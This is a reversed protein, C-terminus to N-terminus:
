KGGLITKAKKIYPLIEELSGPHSLISELIDNIEDLPLLSRPDVKLAALLQSRTETIEAASRLHATLAQNVILMDAYHGGIATRLSKDVQDIADIISARRTAIESGADEMFEQVLAAKAAPDNEGALLQLLRTDKLANEMFRPTWTKRLFDDARQKREKVYQDLLTLHTKEATRIMRTLESSLEVSEKPVTACGTAIVMCLLLVGTQRRLRNM